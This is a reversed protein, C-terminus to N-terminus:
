NTWAIKQDNRSEAKLIGKRVLSAVDPYSAMSEHLAAETGEIEHVGVWTNRGMAKAAYLCEDAVEAVKEWSVKSPEKRFFPYSSFGISCTKHITRGEGIEFPFEEVRARIRDAVLHADARSTHKAVVFFEEGGWRVVTDSDRMTQSLIFAFQKLVQDGAGHGYTDNVQKFHDIDIMLFIVDINVALRAKSAESQGLRQMRHVQALDEAIRTTLYRRNALSTLPDRLSMDALAKNALQLKKRGRVLVAATIFGLAGVTIWLLKMWAQNRRDRELANIQIQKKDSEFAASAAAIRNQDAAKQQAESMAKFLLETEYARRYDGAFAYEEALIGTTETADPLAQTMKFHELGDQIAKIGEASNGLRNLAIGRNIQCVAISAGNNAAQAMRLASEAYNLVARYDKTHLYADALNVAATLQLDRDGVKGALASALKLEVLQQEALGMTGYTNGLSLHFTGMLDLDGLAEGAAIAQKHSAVAESQRGILNYLTGMSDLVMAEGRRDGIEEAVMQAKQLMSIAESFRSFSRQINSVNRYFRELALNVEADKPYAKRYRDLDIQLAEAVAQAEGPKEMGVLLSCGEVELLVHDRQTGGKAVLARGRELYKMGDAYNGLYNSCRVLARLFWAEAVPDPNSALLALAEEGWQISAKPYIKDDGEIKKRLEALRRAPAAESGASAAAALRPIPAAIGALALALALGRFAGEPRSATRMSTM